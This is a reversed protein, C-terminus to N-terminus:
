VCYLKESIIRVQEDWIKAMIKNDIKLYYECNSLAIYYEELLDM